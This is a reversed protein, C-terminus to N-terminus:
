SLFRLAGGRGQQSDEESGGGRLNCADTRGAGATTSTAPSERRRRGDELWEKEGGGVM